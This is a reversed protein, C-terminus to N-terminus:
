SSCLGCATLPADEPHKDLLVVNQQGHAQVLVLHGLEVHDLHSYHPPSFQLWAEHHFSSPSNAPRLTISGSSGGCGTGNTPETAWLLVSLCGRQINLCFSPVPPLLALFALPHKGDMLHGAQVAWM